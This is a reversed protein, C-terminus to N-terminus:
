SFLYESKQPRFKKFSHGNLEEFVINVVEHRM